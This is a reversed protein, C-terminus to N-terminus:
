KLDSAFVKKAERMPDHETRPLLTYVSEMSTSHGTKLLSLPTFLELEMYRLIDGSSTFIKSHLGQNPWEAKSDPLVPTKNEILLDDNQGVSLLTDGDSGIMTSKQPDRVLSLLRGDTKLEKPQAPLMNIYGHPFASQKPLLIFAREPEAVQTVSWVAVSVPAGQVKEYTTKITMVPEQPDLAITRRVRIGYVPSVSSLLQVQDGEVSATYPIADFAKPPPWPNGVIKPWDSQPAPWAKDGGYNTWGEVDPKQETGVAPNNWFVNQAAQGASNENTFGFSMVRGIAPVILIEAVQNRVMITDWGHFNIHTVTIRSMRKQPQPNTIPQQAFSPQTIVTCFIVMSLIYFLFQRFKISM